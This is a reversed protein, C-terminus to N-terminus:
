LINFISLAAYMCTPLCLKFIRAVHTISAVIWQHHHVIDVYVRRRIFSISRGDVPSLSDVSSHRWFTCSTNSSVPTSIGSLTISRARPIPFNAAILTLLSFFQGKPRNNRKYRSVITRTCNSSLLSYFTLDKYIRLLFYTM